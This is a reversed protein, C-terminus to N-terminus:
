LLVKLSKYGLGSAGLGNVKRQLSLLLNQELPLCACGPLLCMQPNSLGLEGQCATCGRAM